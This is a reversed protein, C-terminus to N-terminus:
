KLQPICKLDMQVSSLLHYNGRIRVSQYDLDDFVELTNMSFLVDNLSSATEGIGTSSVRRYSKDSNQKKPEKKGFIKKFWNMNKTKIVRHVVQSVVVVNM